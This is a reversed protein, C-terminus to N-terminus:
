GTRGANVIADGSRCFRITLAEVRRLANCAPLTNCTRLRIGGADVDVLLTRVEDLVAFAEVRLEGSEHLLQAGLTAVSAFTALRCASRVAIIAEQQVIHTYHPIPQGATASRLRQVTDDVLRQGILPLLGCATVSAHLVARQAEAQRCRDARVSHVGATNCRCTM